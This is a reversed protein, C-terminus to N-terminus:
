AAVPEREAAAAELAMVVSLPTLNSSKESGFLKIPPPLKNAERLRWLKMKSCKWRAMLERDTLFAEHNM